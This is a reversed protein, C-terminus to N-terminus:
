NPYTFNLEMLYMVRDLSSLSLSLPSLGPCVSLTLEYQDNHNTSTMRIQEGVKAVFRTMFKVVQPDERFQWILMVVKEMPVKDGSDQGLVEDILRHITLM